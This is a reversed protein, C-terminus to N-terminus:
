IVKLSVLGSLTQFHITRLLKTIVRNGGLFLSKVGWFEGICDRFGSVRCMEMEVMSVGSHSTKPSRSANHKGPLWPISIPWPTKTAQEM